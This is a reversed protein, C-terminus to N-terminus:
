RDVFTKASVGEPEEADLSCNKVMGGVVFCGFYALLKDDVHGDRLFVRLVPVGHDHDSVEKDVPRLVVLFSFLFKDWKVELLM